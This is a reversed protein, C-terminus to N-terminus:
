YKLILAYTATRVALRVNMHGCSVSIPKFAVNLYITNFDSLSNNGIYVKFVKFYVENDKSVSLSLLHNSSKNGRDAM